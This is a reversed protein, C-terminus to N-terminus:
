NKKLFKRIMGIGKKAKFLWVPPVLNKIVGKIGKDVLYKRALSDYHMRNFDDFFASRNSPMIVPHRLARQYMAEELTREESFVNKGIAEFLKKEKESNVLVLSVGKDKKHIFPVKEGIGWFDGLSIDGQREFSTYLCKYCAPRFLISKAFGNIYSDDVGFLVKETESLFAQTVRAGWGFEKHRFNINKIKEKFRRELYDIYRTFLLPSPVGTGLLDCSVLEEETIPFFSNIAAVQCPTGSFLVKRGEDLFAKIKIFTEGMDSQVYKSSRLSGLDEKREVAIHRVHMSEDFAAGFVVGGGELVHEALASFIGGSASAFRVDDNNNWCAFVGPRGTNPNPKANVPCIRRCKGCEICLSEDIEPRLFGERDSAIRICLKPCINACAACGTCLEEPCISKM